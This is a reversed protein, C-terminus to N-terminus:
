QLWRAGNGRRGGAQADSIGFWCCQDKIFCRCRLFPFAMDFWSVLSSTSRKRGAVGGVCSGALVGIEVVRGLDFQRQATAALDRLAEGELQGM